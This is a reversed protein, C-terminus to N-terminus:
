NLVYELVFKSGYFGIILLIFGSLTGRIMTTGRWGLRHHGWLLVAFVLWALVTFFSKHIIGDMGWVDDIFFVGALIALSLLVEGAWLLELLFAEMDQLPPLKTLLGGAHGHKLQYNQYSLFIAQLAAISIFGYALVSLLVHSGSGAGLSTAPFSSGIMLSLLIAVIALPFLGLFLNDLPKRLSSGLVLVSIALAIISSIQTIGFQYGGPARVIGYASIAHAFVAIAGCIFVAVRANRGGRLRQLQVVCAIAYFPM